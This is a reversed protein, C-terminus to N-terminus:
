SEVPNSFHMQVMRWTGERKELVGTWEIAQEVAVSEVERNIGLEPNCSIVSLVAVVAFLPVPSRLASSSRTM